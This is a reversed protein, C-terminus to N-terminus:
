GSSDCTCPSHDPAIAPAEAARRAQEREAHEALARWRSALDLLQRRAEPDAVRGAEREAGEARDRYDQARDM